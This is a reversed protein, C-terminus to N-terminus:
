WGISCSWTEELIVDVITEPGIWRMMPESEITNVDILTHVVRTAIETSKKNTIHAKSKSEAGLSHANQKLWSLFSEGHPCDKAFHGTNGCVFCCCEERQFHNMAQTMRLTLVELHDPQLPADELPEPDPPFLEADVTAAHTGLSSYRKYGKYSEHTSTGGQQVVPDIIHRWRRLSIICPILVWIQRNGRQYTQWPSVLHM